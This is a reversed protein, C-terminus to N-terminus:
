LIYLRGTAVYKSLLGDYPSLLYIDIPQHHLVSENFVLCTTQTPSINLGFVTVAGDKYQGGARFVTITVM